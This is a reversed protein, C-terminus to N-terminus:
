RVGLCKILDLYDVLSFSPRRKQREEKAERKKVGNGNEQIKKSDRKKWTVYGIMDVEVAVGTAGGVPM